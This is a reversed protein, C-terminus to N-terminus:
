SCAVLHRLAGENKLYRPVTYPARYVTSPIRHVPCPPRNVPCPPRPVPSPERPVQWAIKLMRDHKFELMQM